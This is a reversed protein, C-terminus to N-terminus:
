GCYDIYYSAIKFLSTAYSFAVYGLPSAAPIATFKLIVFYQSLFSLYLNVDCNELILNLLHTM